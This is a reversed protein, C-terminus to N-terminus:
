AMGLVELDPTWVTGDHLIGTSVQQQPANQTLRTTGTPWTHYKVAVIHGQIIVRKHERYQLSEVAGKLDELALIQPEALGLCNTQPQQNLPNIKFLSIFTTM